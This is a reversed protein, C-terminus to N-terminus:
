RAVIRAHVSYRAAKGAAMTAACFGPRLRLFGAAGCLADGILPASPFLLARPRSQRTM